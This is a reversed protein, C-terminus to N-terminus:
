YYYGEIRNVTFAGTTETMVPYGNTKINVQYLRDLTVTTGSSITFRCIRMYDVNAAINHTQFSTVIGNSNNNYIEASVQMGENSTAFIKIRKFNAITQTLTGGSSTINGSNLVVPLITGEIADNNNNIANKIENMDEAKVKNIDAVSSNVNLAEKDTFTIDTLNM